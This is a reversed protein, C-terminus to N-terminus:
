ETRSVEDLSAIEDRQIRNYLSKAEKFNRDVATTDSRFKVTKHTASSGGFVPLKTITTNEENTVM